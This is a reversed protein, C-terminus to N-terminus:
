RTVKAGRGWRGAPGGATPRSLAVRRTAAVRRRLDDLTEDTIRAPIDTM